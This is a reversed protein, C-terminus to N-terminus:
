VPLQQAIKTTIESWRHFSATIGHNWHFGTLAVVAAGYFGPRLLSTPSSQIVRAFNPVITICFKAPSPSPPPTLLTCKPRHSLLSYWIERMNLTLPQSMDYKNIWKKVNYIKEAKSHVSRMGTSISLFSNLQGENGLGVVWSLYVCPITM